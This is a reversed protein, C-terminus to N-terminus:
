REIQEAGGVLQDDGPEAGAVEAGVREDDRAPVGRVANRLVAARALEVYLLELKRVMADLDFESRQRLQAAGGLRRRREPDRLLEGVAAALRDPRSPEVLLGHVGDQILDPVGGVRTAVIAVRSAMYEMVALPSGESVSSSIAVDLAALVDPVDGRPGLLTVHRGLGSATIAAELRAQEPGHGAIVLHLEPFEARLLEVAELLDPYAKPTRLGGVAGILQAGAPLGLERRLDANTRAALPPIGNPIVRIRAPSVGEISIMRERDAGSVALLVDARRAVIERDAVRRLAQGEFSWSHEHAILVPVIDRALTAAWLNSGFKHAHLVDIRERRLFARFRRWAALDLRSARGLQLVEVGSAALADVLEPEQRRTFCLYSEFASRDLRAAIAMALREAGGFGLTQDLMTLVRLRPPLVADVRPPRSRTV